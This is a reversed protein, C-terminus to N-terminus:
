SFYKHWEGPRWKLQPWYTTKVIPCVEIQHHLYNVGTCMLSKPDESALSPPMSIDHPAFYWLINEERRIKSLNLRHSYIYNIHGLQGSAAFEKLCDVGPHYELLHEVMLTLGPKRALGIIDEAQEESLVLPKVVYVHRGVLLAERTLTEAPTAVVV